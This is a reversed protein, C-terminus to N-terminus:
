IDKTLALFKGQIELENPLLDHLPTSTKSNSEIILMM